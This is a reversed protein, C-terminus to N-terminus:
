APMSEIPMLYQFCFGTTSPAKQLTIENLLAFDLVWLLKQLLQFYTGSRVPM